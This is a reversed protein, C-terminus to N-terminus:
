IRIEGEIIKCLERIDAVGEFCSSKWQRMLVHVTYFKYHVAAQVRSVAGFPAHNFLRHQNILLVPFLKDSNHVQSYLTLFVDVLNMVFITCFHRKNKYQFPLVWDWSESLPQWGEDEGMILRLRRVFLVGSSPVTFLESEREQQQQVSNYSSVGIPSLDM